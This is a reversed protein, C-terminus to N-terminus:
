FSYVLAARGTTDTSVSGVPPMSEYQVNYSLQASLPGILKANLATTGSLTSNYHQIYASAQQSLSLTPALKWSFDVNGRAALSSEVNDDTFETHRYAPGVELDLKLDPRKVASYGAGVSTSFRDDYGLFRDSEYQVQGYIYSRDNIKYNPEYSALYHRRTTVGLSQQYDFQGAFKQRWRLGDRTLALSGTLGLTDTNGTTLWGGLEAKGSWLQLFSAERIVRDHDAARHDRWQQAIETVAASSDPDAIAAYKLVTSVDGENGSAMAADLMARIPPPITAPDTAAVLLPALSVALLPLRRM